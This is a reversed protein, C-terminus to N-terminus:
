GVVTILDKNVSLSWFIEKNKLMPLIWWNRGKRLMQVRRWSEASGINSDHPSSPRLKPRHMRGVLRTMWPWDTAVSVRIKTATHSQCTGRQTASLSTQEPSSGCADRWLLQVSSPRFCRLFVLRCGERAVGSIMPRTSFPMGTKNQLRGRQTRMCCGFWVM